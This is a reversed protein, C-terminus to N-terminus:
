HRGDRGVRFRTQSAFLGLTLLVAMRLGYKVIRRGNRRKVIDNGGSLGDRGIRRMLLLMLMRGRASGVALRRAMIVQFVGRGGVEKERRRGGNGLIGIRSKIVVQTSRMVM